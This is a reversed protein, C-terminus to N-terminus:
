LVVLAFSAIVALSFVVMLGQTMTLFNGSRSINSAVPGLNGLKGLEEVVSKAERIIAFQTLIGLSGVTVLFVAAFIIAGQTASNAFGMIAVVVLVALAVVSHFQTKILQSRKDNWLEVLDKETM